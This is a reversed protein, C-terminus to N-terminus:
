VSVFRITEPVIKGAAIERGASLFIQVSYRRRGSDCRRVSEADSWVADWVDTADADSEVVLLLLLLLSVTSM